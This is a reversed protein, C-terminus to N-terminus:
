FLLIAPASLTSSGNVTKSVTTKGSSSAGIFFIAVRVPSSGTIKQTVPLRSLWSRQRAMFQYPTRSKFGHTCAHFAHTNFWKVLAAYIISRIIPISGVHDAQFASTRGNFQMRMVGRGARSGQIVYSAIKGKLTVPFGQILVGYQILTLIYLNCYDFSIRFSLYLLLSCIM